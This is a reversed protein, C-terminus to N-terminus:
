IGQSGNAPFVGSTRVTGGGLGQRTTKVKVLKKEVPYRGFEAPVRCIREIGGTLYNWDPFETGGLGVWFEGVGKERISCSCGEFLRRMTEKKTVSSTTLDGRGVGGSKKEM